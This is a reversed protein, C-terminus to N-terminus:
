KSRVTPPLAMEAAGAGERPDDVPALRAEREMARGRAEERLRAALAFIEDAQAFLNGQELDWAANELQRAAQRLSEVDTRPPSAYPPPVFSGPEVPGVQSPPGSQEAELRRVQKVFESRLEAEDGPTAAFMTGKLPGGGLQRRIELIHASQEGPQVVVPEESPVSQPTKGETAATGLQGAGAAGAATAVGRQVPGNAKPGNAKPGSSKVAPERQAALILGAVILTPVFMALVAGANRLYGRM